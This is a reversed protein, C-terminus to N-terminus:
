GLGSGAIADGLRPGTRRESNTLRRKLCYRSSFLLRCEKGRTRLRPQWERTRGQRRSAGGGATHRSCDSASTVTELRYQKFRTLVDSAHRGSAERSGVCSNPFHDASESQLEVVTDAIFVLDAAEFVRDRPKIFRFYALSHHAVHERFGTYRQEEIM